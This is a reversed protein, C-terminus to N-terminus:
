GGIYSRYDLMTFPDRPRGFAYVIYFGKPASDHHSFRLDEPFDDGFTAKAQEQSVVKIDLDDDSKDRYYGVLAGYDIDTELLIAGYFELPGNPDSLKGTRSISGVIAATKTGSTPTEIAKLKGEIDASTINDVVIGAVLAGVIALILIGVLVKVFKM